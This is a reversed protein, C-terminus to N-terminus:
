RKRVRWFYLGGVLLVFVIGGVQLRSLSGLWPELLGEMTAPDFNGGTMGFVALGIALAGAVGALSFVARFFQSDQREAARRRETAKHYRKFRQRSVHSNSQDDPNMPGVYRIIVLSDDLTRYFGIALAM